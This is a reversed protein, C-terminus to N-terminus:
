RSDVQYDRDLEDKPAESIIPQPYNRSNRATLFTKVPKPSSNRLRNILMYVNLRLCATMEEDSDFEKLMRYPLPAGIKLRITRDKGKM